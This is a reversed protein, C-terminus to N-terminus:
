IGAKHSKKLTNQQNTKSMSSNIYIHLSNNLLAEYQFFCLVVFFEVQKNEM